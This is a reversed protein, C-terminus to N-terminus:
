LLIKEIPVKKKKEMKIDRQNEKREEDNVWFTKKMVVISLHNILNVTSLYIIETLNILQINFLSSEDCAAKTVMKLNKGM